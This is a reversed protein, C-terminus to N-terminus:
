YSNKDLNEKDEIIQSTKILNIDKKPSNDKKMMKDRFDDTISRKLPFPITKM